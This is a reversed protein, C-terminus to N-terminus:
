KSLNLRALIDQDVAYNSVVVYAILYIAGTDDSVIMHTYSVIKSVDLDKDYPIVIVNTIRKCITDEFRHQQKENLIIDGNEDRNTKIDITFDLPLINFIYRFHDM